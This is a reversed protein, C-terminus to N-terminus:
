YRSALSSLLPHDFEICEGEGGVGSLDPDRQQFFTKFELADVNIQRFSFLFIGFVQFNM